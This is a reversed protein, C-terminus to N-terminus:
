RYEKITRFSVTRADFLNDSFIFCIINIYLSRLQQIIFIIRSYIRSVSFINQGRYVSKKEFSEYYDPSIYSDFILMRFIIPWLPKWHISIWNSKSKEARQREEQEIRAQKKIIMDFITGYFSLWFNRCEINCGHQQHCNSHCNQIVIWYLHSTLTRDVHTKTTYCVIYVISM